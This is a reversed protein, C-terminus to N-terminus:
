ADYAFVVASCVHTSKVQRSQPPRQTYNGETGEGGAEGQHVQSLRGTLGGNIKISRTRIVRAAVNQVSKVHTPM